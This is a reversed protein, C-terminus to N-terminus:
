LISYLITWRGEPNIVIVDQFDKKSIFNFEVIKPLSSLKVGGGWSLPFVTESLVLCPKVHYVFSSNVSEGICVICM